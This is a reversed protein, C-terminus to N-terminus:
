WFRRWPHNPKGCNKAAVEKVQERIADFSRALFDTERREWRKAVFNAPYVLVDGQGPLALIALDTGQKDSAVVWRFGVADVLFQGFQVGIINITGNIQRVRSEVQGMVRIISEPRQYTPNKKQTKDNSQIHIYHFYFQM